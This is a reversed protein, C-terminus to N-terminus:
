GPEIWWSKQAINEFRLRQRAWLQDLLNAPILLYKEIQTQLLLHALTSVIEYGYKSVDGASNIASCM